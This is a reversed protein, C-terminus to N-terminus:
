RGFKRAGAVCFIVAFATIQMMWTVQEGLLMAAWALGLFPQLLQLQSVSALGWWAPAHITQFTPPATFWTLPGM